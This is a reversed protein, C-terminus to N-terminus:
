RTRRFPSEDLFRRLDAAFRQGHRLDDWTWRYVWWGLARLRNEREKERMVVEALPQGNLSSAYKIRGDFEGLTIESLRVPRRIM